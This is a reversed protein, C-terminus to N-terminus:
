QPLPTSALKALLKEADESALTPLEVRTTFHGRLEGGQSFSWDIIQNADFSIVSGKQKRKLREPKTALFGTVQKGSQSVSTVWLREAGPEGDTAPLEVRLQFDFEEAGPAAHHKWFVPLSARAGDVAAAYEARAKAEGTLEPDAPTCAGLGGAIALSLILRRM